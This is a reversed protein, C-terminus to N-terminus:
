FLVPQTVYESADRGLPEYTRYIYGGDQKRKSGDAKDIWTPVNETKLGDLKRNRLESLRQQYHTTITRLTAADIVTNPQSEFLAKLKVCQAKRYEREQQVTPPDSPAQMRFDTPM